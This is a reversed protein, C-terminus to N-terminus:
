RVKPLTRERGNQRMVVATARGDAGLTFTLTIPSGAASFTAGSVHVLLRKEGGSPQGHLQGGELTIAVTRGAALEYEGTLGEPRPALSTPAASAAAPPAPLQASTAAGAAHGGLRTFRINRAAPHGYDFALVKGSTDRQFRVTMRGGFEFTDREVPSLELAVNPSIELRMVLGNKGPVMQFISGIEDSEYRGAFAQLDDATPAYPQARRYRTTRGEMSKLELQDPSLFRLEFEDQSMFFLSGRPNRFREQTVAVLPPGGAVRLRGDNVILRLPEGTRESFFLGARSNPDLGPVAAGEAPAAPAPPLFQDAVRHALQTTGMADTNCLVAVSLGHDPSFGSWVSYGGAGGSHSVLTVGPYHNVNLGRAYSLKRGNNLTAPEQLKKTVSAGLRGGALADNWIVLDGATSLIAGSGRGREKGVLIELKWSNGEKEYALARNRIVDRMDESYATTKMGLPEFLRKRTFDAVSMGSARAVLETLLVYGSNSYAWEEGPAFNLGRQRLILSLIDANGGALPSLATWDRVGSTHTLLHDVTVKHGYDPLEPFHKRIDDSLSLRGDEALLLVAAAVFQKRVSGIDFISGPSLPADRELDASGYARNVILKGRQSVAVACGPTAQTAWSFIKDVEGTKDQAYASAGLVLAAVAFSALRFM